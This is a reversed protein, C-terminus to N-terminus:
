GNFFLDSTLSTKILYLAMTSFRNSFGMLVKYESLPPSNMASVLKREVFSNRMEGSGWVGWFVITHRLTAMQM